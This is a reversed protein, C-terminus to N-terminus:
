DYEAENTAPPSALPIRLYNSEFDGARALKKWDDIIVSRKTRSILGERDLARLMRNVHVSTLGTCDALQEQTMPLEYANHRGLGAAELRLAFECLLHAMRTKADRRGVNAIWERFIAADVLTDYWMARGITPRDFAIRRVADSPIFALDCHTLAQVNHDATGLLSNQLDIIDGSMHISFIQRMGGSVIKHRYAFGSRLLCTSSPQAGERVIIQNPAMTALSHPLALLAARDEHNFSAWKGLKRLM